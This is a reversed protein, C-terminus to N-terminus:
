KLHSISPNERPTPHQMDGLHDSRADATERPEIAGGGERVGFALPPTENYAVVVAV